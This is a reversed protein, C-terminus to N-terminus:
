YTYIGNVDKDETAKDTQYWLHPVVTITVPVTGVTRDTNRIQSM